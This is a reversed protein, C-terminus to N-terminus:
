GPIVNESPNPKQTPSRALTPVASALWLGPLLWWLASFGLSLVVALAVAAGWVAGIADAAIIRGDGLGDRAGCRLAALFPLGATSAGLAVAAMSWAPARFDSMWWGHAALVGLSGVAALVAAWRPNLLWQRGPLAGGPLAGGLVLGGVASGGLCCALAWSWAAIPDGLVLQGCHVALLQLAMSGAGAAFASALWRSSGAKITPVHRLKARSRALFAIAVTSLLLAIPVHIPTRREGVFFFPRDDTVVATSDNPPAWAVAGLQSAQLNFAQADVPKQGSDDANASAVSGLVLFAFPNTVRDTPANNALTWGSIKAGDGLAAQLTAWTTQALRETNQLVAVHGGPRLKESYTRLAQATLVHAHVHTRGRSVAPATQLLSLLVLDWVSESGAVFRRGEAVVNHVKPNQLVGGAFSDLERAFALTDANVEVADVRLAGEQLAVAADFGAGAGLLLVQEPRQARMALRKLTAMDEVHPDDFEASRGDWRVSRAVFMGDTLVYRVAERRTQLLDTRATASSVHRHAVVGENAALKKLQTQVGVDSLLPAPLQQVALPGLAILGLLVGGIESAYVVARERNTTAAAFAQASGWGFVAFPWMFAGMAWAVDYRTLLLYAGAAVVGVAPVLRWFGSNAAGFRRQFVAGFALALLCVALALYALDWFFLASCLRTVLLEWAGLLLGAFAM